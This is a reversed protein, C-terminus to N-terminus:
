IDNRYQPGIQGLVLAASGLGRELCADLASRDLWADLFGADFADGAGTRDVVNVPRAKCFFRQGGFYAEAGADGLTVVVTVDHKSSKIWTETVLGQHQYMKLEAENMFIIDMLEGTRMTMRGDTEWSLSVGMQRWHQLQDRMEHSPSWSFHLHDGRQFGLTQLYDFVVTPDAIGGGTLISKSNGM